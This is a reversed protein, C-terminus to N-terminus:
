GFLLVGNWISHLLIPYFLSWTEKKVYGRRFWLGMVWLIWWILNFWSMWTSIFFPLHIIWFWCAQVMNAQLNLLSKRLHTYLLWRFVYEEVVSNVILVYGYTLLANKSIVGLYEYSIRHYTSLMVLLSLAWRWRFTHRQAKRKQTVKSNLLIIAPLLYFVIKYVSSLLERWRYWQQIRFLNWWFFYRLINGLLIILILLVTKKMSVNPQIFKFFSNEPVFINIEM